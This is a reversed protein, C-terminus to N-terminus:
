PCLWNTRVKAVNGNLESGQDYPSVIVSPFAEVCKCRFVLSPVATNTGDVVSVFVKAGCICAAGNIDLLGIAGIIPHRALTAGIACRVDLLNAFSSLASLRLQVSARLKSDDNNAEAQM